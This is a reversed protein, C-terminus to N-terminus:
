RRSSRSRHSSRSRAPRSSFRRAAGFGGDPLRVASQVVPSREVPRATWVAIATGDPAVAVQAGEADQVRSRRSGGAGGFVGGPPRTAPRSSRATIAMETGSWRRRATRASLSRPNFASQKWGGFPESRSAFSGGALGPRPRSSTRRDTTARGSWPQPGTRAAIAIDPNAATKGATLCTRGPQWVAGPPSSIGPNNRHETSGPGSRSRRNRRRRGRAPHVSREARVALPGGAPRFLWRAAPNPVSRTTPAKSNRGPWSRRATRPPPWPQTSDREVPDLSTRRPGSAGGRPRSASQSRLQIRQVTRFGRDDSGDPDVGAHPFFADQGPQSLNDAPLIWPGQPAAREKGALLLLDRGGPGPIRNCDYRRRSDRLPM